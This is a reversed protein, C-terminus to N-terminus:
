FNDDVDAFDLQQAIDNAFAKQTMARQMEVIQEGHTAWLVDRLEDLFTIVAYADAADWYTTLYTLKMTM